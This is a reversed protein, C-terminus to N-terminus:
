YPTICKRGTGRTYCWWIKQILDKELSGSNVGIRIPIQKQKAKEVVAQIRSKRELIALILVYKILELDM